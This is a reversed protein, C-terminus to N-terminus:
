TASESFWRMWYKLHTLTARSGADKPFTFANNLYPRAAYLRRQGPLPASAAGNVARHKVTSVADNVADDM